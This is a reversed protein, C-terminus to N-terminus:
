ESRENERETITDIILDISRRKELLRTFCEYEGPAFVAHLLPGFFALAQSGIFNLPRSSELVMLAPATLRRRVVLRALRDALAREQESFDEGAEVAFANALGARFRELRSM